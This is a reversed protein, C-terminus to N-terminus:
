FEYCLKMLVRVGCVAFVCFTWVLRQKLTVFLMLGIFSIKVGDSMECLFCQQGVSGIRHHHLYHHRHMCHTSFFWRLSLIWKIWSVLTFDNSKITNKNNNSNCIHVVILFWKNLRVVLDNWISIGISKKTLRFNRCNLDVLIKLIWFTIVTFCICKFAWVSCWAGHVM